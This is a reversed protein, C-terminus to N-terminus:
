YVYYRKSDRCYEDIRQLSPTGLVPIEVLFRTFSRDKPDLGSVSEEGLQFGDRLADLIKECWKNYNVEGNLITDQQFEEFLWLISLDM